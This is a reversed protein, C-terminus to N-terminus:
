KIAEGTTRDTGLGAMEEEVMAAVRPLDGLDWRRRLEMVPVRSALAVVQAFHAGAEGTSQLLPALYSHRVLELFRQQPPLPTCAESDGTGLVFVRSLPVSSHIFDDAACPGSRLRIIFCPCATGSTGSANRPRRRLKSNPFAPISLRIVRTASILPFLTM